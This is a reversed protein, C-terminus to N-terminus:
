NKWHGVTDSGNGLLSFTWKGSSVPLEFYGVKYWHDGILEFMDGYEGKILDQDYNSGSGNRDTSHVTDCYGTYLVRAFEESYNFDVNFSNCKGLSLAVQTYIPPVECDEQCEDESCPEEPDLIDEQHAEHTALEGENEITEPVYGEGTWHCIDFSTFGEPCGQEPAPIIDKAHHLHGNLQGQNAPTIENYHGGGFHCIPDVQTPAALASTVLLLGVLGALGLSYIKKM